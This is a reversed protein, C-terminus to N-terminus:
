TSQTNAKIGYKSALENSITIIPKGGEATIEQRESWKKKNLRSTIFKSVDIALKDDNSDIAKYLRIEAKHVMLEDSIRESLWEKPVSTIHKATEDSYGAKLASQYANSFSNSQPNLFFGLFLKQKPSNQWQNGQKDIQKGRKPNM